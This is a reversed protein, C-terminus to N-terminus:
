VSLTTHTIFLFLVIGALAAPLATIIIFPDLWSQFNVVILLYVLVIAFGLGGILGIYSARMTGYQGRMTVFSGRPLAKRNADVIRTAERGVAGLDRDQVSAYADIVRRINYHNISGLESTRQISAVDALIAPRKQNPGSIPINEIDQGLQIDYQPTQTVLNYSVGNKPNLYFMPTVQFSGSLSILMSNAIDRETFGGQAAKTRDVAIHFKPYDAQQQIRLDAIGRVHSLETMMKDAVRGNDAIDPGDIQIDIPAPLDFNLTQTVIDAPLFYFTDGPFERPLQVRPTRVYDATPHHKEKLSVLIDADAAGTLGSRNYIYNITSIPLGINDLVNDVEAPSITQLIGREVQDVLRATDEIRTGTKARVHLIFQGSDTDPFFDQGLFPVLFFGCFCVALFGPVFVKRSSVLRTLLTSYALRIRDFLREFRRQFRAFSDHSTQGGRQNAKLLYMALTPVLTRSLFYSALMAFVGSRRTSRLPVKRRWELLVDSSLRYLYVTDFGAEHAFDVSALPYDAQHL